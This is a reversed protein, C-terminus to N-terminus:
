FDDFPNMHSEEVRGYGTIELGNGENGGNQRWRTAKPFSILVKVPVDRSTPNNFCIFADKVDTIRYVTAVEVEQDQSNREKRYVTLESCSFSAADIDGIAGDVDVVITNLEAGLVGKGKCHFQTVRYGNRSFAPGDWEFRGDSWVKLHGKPHSTLDGGDDWYGGVGYIYSDNDIILGTARDGEESWPSYYCTTDNPDPQYYWRALATIDPEVGARGPPLTLLASLEEANTLKVKVTDIANTRKDKVFFQIGTVYGKDILAQAPKETTSMRYCGNTPPEVKPNEKPAYYAVADYYHDDTLSVQSMKNTFLLVAHEASRNGNSDAELYYPTPAIATDGKLIVAKAAKEGNGKMAPSPVLLLNYNGQGQGSLFSVTRCAYPGAQKWCALKQVCETRNFAIPEPLQDYYLEKFRRSEVFTKQSDLIKKIYEMIFGEYYDYFKEETEINFGQQLAKAVNWGSGYMLMDHLTANQDAHKRLYDIFDGLMYGTDCNVGGMIAEGTFCCLDILQEISLYARESLNSLADEMKRISEQVTELSVATSYPNTVSSNIIAARIIVEVYAKCLEWLQDLKVHTPAVPSCLSALLWHRNTRLVFELRADAAQTRPDFGLKNNKYLWDAFDRELVSAGAETLRSDKFVNSFVYGSHFHHFMEHCLTIFIRDGEDDKITKTNNETKVYKGAYYIGIWPSLDMINNYAGLEGSTLKENGLYIPCINGPIKLGQETALYNLSVQAMTKINLISQPTEMDRDKILKELERDSYVKQTYLTAFSFRDDIVGRYIPAPNNFNRLSEHYNQTEREEQKAEEKLEALRKDVKKLAKWYKDPNPHETEEPLFGISVMGCNPDKFTLYALSKFGYAYLHYGFLHYYPFGGALVIATATAATAGLKVSLAAVACCTIVWLCNRDTDFSLKGDKVRCNWEQIYGKEDVRSVCLADWIEEPVDMEELDMEVNFTGPMHQGPALGADLDFSFLPIHQELQQEALAAVWEDEAKTALRFRVNTPQEFANERASIIVGPAVEKRFAPSNGGWAPDPPTPFNRLEDDTFRDVASNGNGRRAETRPNDEDDEDDDWDHGKSRPILLIAVVVLAAIPLLLFWYYNNNSSGKKPAM